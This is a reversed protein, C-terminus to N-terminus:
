LLGFISSAAVMNFLFGLVVDTTPPWAAGFVYNSCLKLLFFCTKMIETNIEVLTCNHGLCPQSTYFDEIEKLFFTKFYHKNHM